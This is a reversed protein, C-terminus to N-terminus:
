FFMLVLWRLGSSSSVACCVRPSFVALVLYLPPVGQQYWSRLLATRLATPYSVYNNFIRSNNQPGLMYIGGGDQLLSKYPGIDNYSITNNVAFSPPATWGWSFHLM